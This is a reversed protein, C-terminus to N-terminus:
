VKVYLQSYVQPLPLSLHPAAAEERSTYVTCRVSGCAESAATIWAMPQRYILTLRACPIEIRM